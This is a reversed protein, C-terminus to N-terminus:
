RPTLTRRPVDNPLALSLTADTVRHRLAGTYRFWGPLADRFWAVPPTVEIYAREKPQLTVTAWNKVNDCSDRGNGCYKDAGIQMMWSVVYADRSDNRIPIATTTNERFVIPSDSLLNVAFASRVIQLDGIKTNQNLIPAQAEGEFFVKSVTVAIDYVTNAKMDFEAAQSATEAFAITAPLVEKTALDTLPGVTLLVRQDGTARLRLRGKGEHSSAPLRVAPTEIVSLTSSATTSPTNQAQAAACPLLFTVALAVVNRSDRTRM